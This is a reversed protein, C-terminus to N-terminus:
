YPAIALAAVRGLDRIRKRTIREHEPRDSYVHSCWVSNPICRWHCKVSSNFQPKWECTSTELVMPGFPTHHLEWSIDHLMKNKFNGLDVDERLNQSKAWAKLDLLVVKENKDLTEFLQVGPAHGYVEACAIPDLCYHCLTPRKWCCCEWCHKGPIPHSKDMRRMEEIRLQLMAQM